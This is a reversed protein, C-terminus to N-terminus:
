SQCRTIAMRMNYRFTVLGVHVKVGTHLCHRSRTPESVSSLLRDIRGVMTGSVSQGLGGLLASGTLM